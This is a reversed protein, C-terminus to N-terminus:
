GAPPAVPEKKEVVAQLVRPLSAVVRDLVTVLGRAPAALAGVLMGYLAARPPLTALLALDAPGMVHGDATGIKVAPLKHEKQFQALVQAAPAPDGAGAVMATPGRLGPALGECAAGMAVRFLRNPVVQLRAGAQRLRGRLDATKVSDLGTFDVLIVYSAAEVRRRIEDAMSEKEPRLRRPEAWAATTTM